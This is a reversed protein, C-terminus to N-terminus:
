MGRCCSYSRGERAGWGVGPERCRTGVKEAERGAASEGEAGVGGTAGLGGRRCSVAPAVRLGPQEDLAPRGRPALVGGGGWLSSLKM